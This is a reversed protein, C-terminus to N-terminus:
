RGISNALKQLHFCLDELKKIYEGIEYTLSLIDLSEICGVEEKKELKLNLSHLADDLKFYYQRAEEIRRFDSSPLNKECFKICKKALEKQETGIKKMIEAHNVIAVIDKGDVKM